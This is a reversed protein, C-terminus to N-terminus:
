SKQDRKTGILEKINADKVIDKKKLNSIRMRM